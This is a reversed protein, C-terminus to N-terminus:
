PIKGLCVFDSAIEEWMDRVATFKATWVKHAGPDNIIDIILYGYRGGDAYILYRDSLQHQNSNHKRNKAWTKKWLALKDADNVPVMHAHRAYRSGMNAVDRGFVTTQRGAPDNKWEPSQM